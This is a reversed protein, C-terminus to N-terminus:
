PQTKEDDGVESVIFQNLLSMLANGEQLCLQANQEELNLM